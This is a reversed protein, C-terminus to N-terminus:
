NDKSVETFTEESSVSAYALMSYCNHVHLRINVQTIDWFKIGV